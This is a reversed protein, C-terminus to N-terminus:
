AQGEMEAQEALLNAASQGMPLGFREALPHGIPFWNRTAPVLRKCLADWIEQADPPWEISAVMSCGGDGVCQFVPQNPTLEFANTCFPRPCEAVWRGYNVYAQCHDTILTM